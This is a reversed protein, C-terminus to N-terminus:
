HGAVMNSTKSTLGKLGSQSSKYSAYYFYLLLLSTNSSGAPPGCHFWLSSKISTTFCSILNTPTMSSTASCLTLYLCVIPKSPFLLFLLALTEEDAIRGVTGQKSHNKEWSERLVGMRPQPRIAQKWPLAELSGFAATKAMPQPFIQITETGQQHPLGHPRKPCRGPSNFTKLGSGMLDVYFTGYVGCSDTVIPVASELCSPSKKSSVPLGSSLCFSPGIWFTCLQYFSARFSSCCHRLPCGFFLKTAFLAKELRSFIMFIM